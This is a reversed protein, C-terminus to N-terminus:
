AELVQGMLDSLEEIRDSLEVQEKWDSPIKKM